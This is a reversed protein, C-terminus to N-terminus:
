LKYDASGESAKEQTQKMLEFSDIFFKFDESMDQKDDHASLLQYLTHGVFILRGRVYHQESHIVFDVSPYDEFNFFEASILVSDDASELIGLLATQLNHEPNSFTLESPYTSVMVLYAVDSSPESIYSGFGIEITSNPVKLVDEHHKPATPFSVSFHDIDSTVKQWGQRAEVVSPVAEAAAVPVAAMLAWALVGIFVAGLVRTTPSSFLGKRSRSSRVRAKGQLDRALETESLPLWDWYTENWVLTSATLEGSEVFDRMQNELIPGVREEGRIFHWSVQQM